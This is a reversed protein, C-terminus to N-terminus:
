VYEFIDKLKVILNDCISVKIFDTYEKIKDIDNDSMNNNEAIEEDTLYYYINDLIFWSDQNYYVEVSKSWVDVIWYEKVGYKAYTYKKKSRDNKATTKSLVEVVLDPAGHIGDHKIIDPNCVIMTDPVFRNNEDLFVDVGDCFARCTKGKLYSRFESAINTCVTAHEVRPRPSMMFIKGDILETKIKINRDDIYALNDM